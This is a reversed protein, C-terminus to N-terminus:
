SAEAEFGAGDVDSRSLGFEQHLVRVADLARDLPTVVSARQQSVCTWLATIGAASLAATMRATWETRDLLGSGVVSVKGVNRDVAVTGRTGALAPRLPPLIVAADDRRVTFGMRFTREDPGSHAVFDVPVRCRALVDLVARRPDAGTGRARVMVRAVDLDHAVGVVRGGSDLADGPPMPHIVSGRRGTWSNGVQLEVGHAAALRVAHPHIVKAGAVALETMTAVDLEPRLRAGAVARPDATYVGDVDTYIDCRSAKLAAALAVATTDSGGRGLTVVDGADDTGQFGAVVVVTKAALLRLIRDPRVATIRGAGPTGTALVGAQPGTLSAAPVGQARLALALLAASACEGTALLQDLDRSPRVDGFEAALRLMDDTTDGRASVVVVIGHGGRHVEAIQGAVRRAIAVTALSSGGYKRIVARM